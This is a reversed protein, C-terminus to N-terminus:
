QKKKNHKKHSGFLDSWSDFDKTLKLGVGQKYPLDTRTYDNTNTRNYAFLHVLPSIRYGILADLVTGNATTELERSEGGYGLTSELYWRGWDKSINLDIQQNTIDTAAKYDVNIDVFEVMDAMFSGMTSAIAGIGGSAATTANQDTGSVNYFQGLLLLSVTQNIMDRESNRDIYSFVEEEVSQDANPLRLDFKVTPEQLTGAIAIIDEVQIYKQTNDVSSLSGTLTSLNARQSYVARLDFRANTPAGNFAINSGNEITFNKEILSLMNLKLDGNIIEYNGNVMPSMQQDLDIHLDGRGIAGVGVQLETFDMPLNLQLDPTISLDIGLTYRTASQKVAKGSSKKPSYTPQDSVFTIYNQTKVHKLNSLPVTLTCGPNTRATVAIDLDNAAGHITANASALLTGYFDDGRKQDLLLLNDTAVALNLVIEELNSYRIRGNITAMNNRQDRLTFNKLDVNGNHFTLSDDFFYTVGTLDLKMAGGEVMAQGVIVPHSLSGVIDFNGHLRGEFRSSFTSLFPAALALELGNFNAGFNLAPDKAGLDLYGSASIYDSGLNLNLTNLEANWTSRAVVDGLPQRNVVCSDVKLAANFYPKEGIGYMEFHGGVCGDIDLNSGQLLVKCLGGLNFRNFDLALHDDNRGQLLLTAMIRQLGSSLSIGKAAVNMQKGDPIIKLSDIDLTWRTDGIYFYPRQVSINGDALHLLIDGRTASKDNQDGWFLQLNSHSPNSALSVNFRKLLETKGVNVEQAELDMMYHAGANRTSLGLNDFLLTGIRVSDSRLALKLLERQNYSGSMRTGKAISVNYGAANLLNGNDNWHATFNLTNDSIEQLQTSDPVAVLGLDAPLMQSTFERIMIPLHAYDFHGTASFDLPDSTIRLHKQKGSSYMELDINGVSIAGDDFQLHTERANVRTRLSDLTSGEGNAKIRTHLDGRSAIGLTQLNLRQLDIEIQAKTTKVTKELGTLKAALAINLLSDSCSAEFQLTGDSLQAKASAPAIHRGKVVSNTLTLEMEGSEVEWQAKPEASLSGREVRVEGSLAFGTHSLWDSALSTLGLGDSGAEIAISYGQETPMASLDARLDGLTCLMNINATSPTHLGGKATATLDIYGVQNLWKALDPSIYQPLAELLMAIDSDDLRLTLNNLNLALNDIKEVQRVDGDVSLRSAQGLSIDLGDTHLDNVTGWATGDAGVQMDIDWLVPAWYAVDSMAVTTGRKIEVEHEVTNLYDNMVAWNDYSLLADLMIHTRPTVVELEKARIERNSVHVKGCIKEVKFGSREETALAVIRATVDDNVVLVDKIRARIDYFEMHPIEVGHEFVVKRKDPLDMKYHVHNLVVTKAKVTFTEGKKAGKGSGYYDIIFQLNTKPKGGCTDEISAFYYYANALYLRKLDLTGVNMGEGTKYPFRNFKVRLTEADLITDGEPDVLLLNHASLHDWPLAHLSGIRVKCKWEKSFKSAVAAGVYSQVVSYNVLAVAVYVALLLALLGRWTINWVRKM